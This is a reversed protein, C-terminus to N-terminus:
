PPEPSIKEDCEEFLIQVPYRLGYPSAISASSCTAAPRRCLGSATVTCFAPYWVASARQVLAGERNGTCSIRWSRVRFSERCRKLSQLWLAM